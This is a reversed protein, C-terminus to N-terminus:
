LNRERDFVQHISEYVLNLIIKKQWDPSPKQLLKLYKNTAKNSLM